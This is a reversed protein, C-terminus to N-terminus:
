SSSRLRTVATINQSRAGGIKGLTPKQAELDKHVWNRGRPSSKGLHCRKLSLLKCRRQQGYDESIISKKYKWQENSNQSVLKVVRVM